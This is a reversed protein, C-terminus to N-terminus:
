LSVPFCQATASSAAVFQNGAKGDAIWTAFKTAQNRIYFGIPEIENDLEHKAHLCQLASIDANNRRQNKVWDLVDGSDAYKDEKLGAIM